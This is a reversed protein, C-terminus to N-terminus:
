LVIETTKEDPQDPEAAARCRSSISYLAGSLVEIMELTTLDHAAWANDISVRAEAMRVRREQAAKSRKYAM